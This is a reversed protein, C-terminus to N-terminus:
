DILFILPFKTFSSKDISSFLLTPVMFDKNVANIMIHGDISPKPNSLPGFMTDSTGLSVAVEGEQLQLGALSCPNDGSSAIVHCAPSFGYRFLLSLFLLQDVCFYPSLPM